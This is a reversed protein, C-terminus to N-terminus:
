ASGGATRGGAMFAQARAAEDAEIQRGRAPGVRRLLSRRAVELTRALLPGFTRRALSAGYLLTAYAEPHQGAAEQLGAIQLATTVFAAPQPNAVGFRVMLAHLHPPIPGLRRPSVQLGHTLEACITQALGGAGDALAPVAELRGYLEEYFAAFAATVPARRRLALGRLRAFDARGGAMDGREARWRARLNLAEALAEPPPGAAIVADLEAVAAAADTLYTVRALAVALSASPAPSAPVAGALRRAQGYHQMDLLAHIRVRAEDPLGTSAEDLVELADVAQTRRLLEALRLRAQSVVGPPAPAGQDVVELLRLAAEAQTAGDLLLAESQAQDLLAEVSTQSM